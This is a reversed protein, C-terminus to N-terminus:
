RGQDTCSDFAALFSVGARDCCRQVTPFTKAVFTVHFYSGREEVADDFVRQRLAMLHLQCAGNHPPCTYMHRNLAAPAM